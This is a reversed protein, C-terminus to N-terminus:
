FFLRTKFSDPCLSLQVTGLFCGRNGFSHALTLWNWNTSIESFDPHLSLRTSMYLVLGQDLFSLAKFHIGFLVELTEFYLHSLIQSRPSLNM